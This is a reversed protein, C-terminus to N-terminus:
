LKKVLSFLRSPLNLILSKIKFFPYFFSETEILKLELRYRYWAILHILYQVESDDVTSLSNLSKYFAASSESIIDSALSLQASGFGKAKRFSDAAKIGYYDSQNRKSYPTVSERWWFSNSSYLFYKKHNTLRNVVSKSESILYLLNDDHEDLLSMDFLKVYLIRIINCITSVQVRSRLVQIDHSNGFYLYDLADFKNYCINLSTTWKSLKM